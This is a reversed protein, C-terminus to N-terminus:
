DVYPREPGPTSWQGGGSYCAPYQKNFVGHVDAPAPIVNDPALPPGGHGLDFIHHGAWSVGNSNPWEGFESSWQRRFSARSNEWTDRRSKTDAVKPYNCCCHTIALRGGAAAPLLM